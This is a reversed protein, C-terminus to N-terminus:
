PSCWSTNNLRPIWRNVSIANIFYLIDTEIELHIACQNFMGHMNKEQNYYTIDVYKWKHSRKDTFHPSSSYVTQRDTAAM